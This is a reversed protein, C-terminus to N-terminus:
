SERTDPSLKIPIMTRAFLMPHIKGMSAFFHLNSGAKITAGKSVVMKSVQETKIKKEM